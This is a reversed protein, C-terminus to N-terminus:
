RLTTSGVIWSSIVFSSLLLASRYKINMFFFRNPVIFYLSQTSPRGCHDYIDLSSDDTGVTANSNKKTNQTISAISHWFTAITSMGPAKTCVYWYPVTNTFIVPTITRSNNLIFGPCYLFCILHNLPSSTSYKLSFLASYPVRRPAISNQLFSVFNM